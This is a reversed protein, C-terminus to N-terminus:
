VIGYDYILGVDMIAASYGVFSINTPSQFFVPSVSSGWTCQAYEQNFALQLM